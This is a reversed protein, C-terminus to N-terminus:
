ILFIIICLIVGLSVDVVRDRAYQHTGKTIHNHFPFFPLKAYSMSYDLLLHLTFFLVPIYSRVFISLPIVWLYSIPEQLPTRWHLHRQDKFNKLKLFLPLKLLHDLDLAVGFIFALVWEPPTLHLLKGLVIVSFIHTLPNM